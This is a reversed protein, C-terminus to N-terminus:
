KKVEKIMNVLQVLANEKGQFTIVSKQTTVNGNKSYDSLIFDNFCKSALNLVTQNKASKETAQFMLLLEDIGIYFAGPNTTAIKSHDANLSTMDNPFKVKASPSTAIKIVKDKVSFFYEDKISYIGNSDASMNSLVPQLREELLSQNNLSIGISVYPSAVEKLVESTEYEGTQENFKSDFVLKEHKVVGNFAIFFDGGLVEAIEEITIMGMLVQNLQASVGEQKKINNLLGQPNVSFSLWALPNETDCIGLLSGVQNEKLMEEQQIEQSPNLTQKLFMEIEGAKFDMTFLSYSDKTDLGLDPLMQGGPLMAAYSSAVKYIGMLEENSTWVTLHTSSNVLNSFDSKEHVLNQEDTKALLVIAETKLDGGLPSIYALCTQDDWVFVVKDSPSSVNYSDVMSVEEGKQELYAKFDAGSKLPIIIGGRASPIDSGAVFAFYEDFQEVGVNVDSSFLDLLGGSKLEESLDMSKIFDLMSDSMLDKTNVKLVLAANGPIYNTRDVKNNSCSSLFLLTVTASLFLSSKLFATTNM